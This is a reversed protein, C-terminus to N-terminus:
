VLKEESNTTAWSIFRESVEIITPVLREIVLAQEEIAIVLCTAKHKESEVIALWGVFRIALVYELAEVVSEIIARDAM